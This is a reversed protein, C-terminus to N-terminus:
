ARTKAIGPARMEQATPPLLHFEQLYTTLLEFAETPSNARKVLRLDDSAIAGWDALMELRLIDDWYESGYLVIQIQKELKATQMLTLIEFM